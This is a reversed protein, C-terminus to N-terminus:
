STFVQTFLYSAAPATFTFVYDECVRGLYLRNVSDYLSEVTMEELAFMTISSFSKTGYTGELGGPRSILAVESGSIADYVYAFTTSSAGLESSVYSTDDVIVPTDYLVDPLGWAGNIWPVDGRLQALAFPSSSCFATVEPSVSMQLAVAPSMLALVQDRKVASLTTKQIQQKGYGFCWKIIPNSGTGTGFNGSSLGANLARITAVTATHNSDYNGSTFILSAALLTRGTMALQAMQGAEVALIPWSAANVARAGLLFPFCRRQTNVLTWSFAANNWIGSPAYQGDPWTFDSLNLNAIRGASDPTVALFYASPQEVKTIQIYRSIPFDKVNRSYNIILEGSGEFSPVFVNSSSAVSSSGPYTIAM